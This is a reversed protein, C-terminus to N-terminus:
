IRKLAIVHLLTIVGNPYEYIVFISRIVTILRIIQFEVRKGWENNSYRHFLLLSIQFM